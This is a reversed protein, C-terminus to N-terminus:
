SEEARAELRIQIADSAEDLADRLALEEVDNPHGQYEEGDTMVVTFQYCRVGACLGRWIMIGEVDSRDLMGDRRKSLTESIM